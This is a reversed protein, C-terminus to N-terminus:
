REHRWGLKALKESIKQSAISNGKHAPIKDRNLSGARCTWEECQFNLWAMQEAFRYRAEQQQSPATKQSNGRKKPFTNWGTVIEFEV